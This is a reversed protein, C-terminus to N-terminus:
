HCTKCVHCPNKGLRRFIYGEGFSWWWSNYFWPPTPLYLPYIYLFYSWVSGWCKLINQQDWKEPGKVDLSKSIAAKRKGVWQSRDEQMKRQARREKDWAPKNLRRSQQPKEQQCGHEWPRVNWVFQRIWTRGWLFVMRETFLLHIIIWTIANEVKSHHSTYM